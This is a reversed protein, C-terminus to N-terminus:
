SVKGLAREAEFPVQESKKDPGDGWLTGPERDLHPNGWFGPSVGRPLVWFCLAHCGQQIINGFGFPVTRNRLKGPSNSEFPWRVMEEQQVQRRNARTHGWVTKYKRRLRQSSTKLRSQLTRKIRWSLELVSNKAAWDRRRRQEGEMVEAIAM